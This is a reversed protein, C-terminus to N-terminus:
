CIPSRVSDLDYTKEIESTDFMDVLEDIYRPASGLPPVTDLDVESLLLKQKRDLVIFSRM